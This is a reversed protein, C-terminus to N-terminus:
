EEEEPLYEVQPRFSLGERFSSLITKAQLWRTRPAILARLIHYGVRCTLYVWGRVGEQRYLYVENRYLLRYRYRREPTDTAINIKNNSHTDHLVRCGTVAYCPYRRSLRRTYELDDAWIFFEKIPLGVERVRSVPFFASVFTAMIVPLYPADYRKLKTTLGTKQVNMRCISGDRWYAIGSLFGYDGELVRDAELLAELANEEPVCDDDMVWLYDYGAQAALRMGCQFGGSGGLNHQTNHYHLCPDDSLAAVAQATGDTSGNDIILIDPRQGKQKQLASICRLLQACRNYTVVIAVVRKAM